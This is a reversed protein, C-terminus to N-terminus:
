RNGSSNTHLIYDRVRQANLDLVERPLRDGRSMWIRNDNQTRPVIHRHLHPIEQGALKGNNTITNISDVRFVERTARAMLTELWGFERAMSKTFRKDFLDRIHDNPLILPYGDELATIVSFKDTRLIYSAEREGSVIQCFICNPNNESM